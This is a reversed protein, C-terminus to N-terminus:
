SVSCTGQAGRSTVKYLKGGRAGGVVADLPHLAGDINRGRRLEFALVAPSLLERPGCVCGGGLCNQPSAPGELRNALHRCFHADVQVVLGPIVSVIGILHIRGGALPRALSIFLSLSLLKNVIM